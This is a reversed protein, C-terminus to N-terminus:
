GPRFHFVYPATEFLRRGATKTRGIRIGQLYPSDIAKNAAAVADILIQYARVAATGRIADVRYLVLGLRM